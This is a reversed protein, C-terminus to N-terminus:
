KGIKNLANFIEKLDNPIVIKLQSIRAVELDQFEKMQAQISNLKANSENIKRSYEANKEFKDKDLVEQMTHLMGNLEAQYARHKAQLKFFVDDAEKSTVSPTYTYIIADKDSGIMHNPEQLKSKLDKRAKNFKGDIHIYKGIVACQTQLELLRNRDKISLTALYEDESMYTPRAISVHEFDINQLKCFEDIRLDKVEQLLREKAKIAERLWAILAKAEVVQQLKSEMSEIFASDNGRSLVKVNSDTLTSVAKNILKVGDLESEVTQYFEKAVNAIHNASTSTLGEEGLFIYDQKM